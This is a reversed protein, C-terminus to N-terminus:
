KYSSTTKKEKQLKTFHKIFYLFDGPTIYNFKKENKQLKDNLEKIIMHYSTISDVFCKYVEDPNLNKSYNEQRCEVLETLKKAVQFLGDRSWDCFWDIVCRNYLAHSSDARNSFDPSLHNITFVM